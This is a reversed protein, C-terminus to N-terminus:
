LGNQWDQSGSGDSLSRFFNAYQAVSWNQSEAIVSGGRVYQYTVGPAPAPNRLHVLEYLLYLGIVDTPSIYNIMWPDPRSGGGGNALFSANLYTAAAHSTIDRVQNAGPLAGEIVQKYTFGIGSDYSIFDGVVGNNVQKIGSGAEMNSTDFVSSFSQGPMVGARMWADYTIQGRDNRWNGPSWGDCLSGDYSTLSTGVRASMFGSISCSAAFAPRNALLLLAPAGKLLTRRTALGKAPTQEGTKTKAELVEKNGEM